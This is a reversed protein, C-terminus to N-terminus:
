YGKGRYGPERRNRGKWTGEDATGGYEQATSQDSVHAAGDYKTVCPSDNKREGEEGRCVTMEKNKGAGLLNGQCDKSWWCKRPATIARGAIEV